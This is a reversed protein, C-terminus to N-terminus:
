IYNKFLRIKLKYKLNLLYVIFFGMKFIEIEIFFM